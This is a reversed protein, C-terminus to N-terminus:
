CDHSDDNKRVYTVFTLPRMLESAYIYIVMLANFEDAALNPCLHVPGMNRTNDSHADRPMTVPRLESSRKLKLTKSLM